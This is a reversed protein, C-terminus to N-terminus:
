RTALFVVLAAAALGGIAVPLIPFGAEPPRPPPPPPAAPKGDVDKKMDQYLDYMCAAGKATTVGMARCEEFRKQYAGLTEKPVKALLDNIDDESVGIAELIDGVVSFAQEPARAQALSFPQFSRGGFVEAGFITRM